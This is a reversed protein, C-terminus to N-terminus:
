LIALTSLNKKNRNNSQKALKDTHERDLTWAYLHHLNISIMCAFKRNDHTYCNYISTKM